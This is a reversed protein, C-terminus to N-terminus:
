QGTIVLNSENELHLSDLTHATCGYLVASFHLVAEEHALFTWIVSLEQVRGRKNQQTQALTMLLAPLKVASICKLSLLRFHPKEMLTHSPISINESLLKWPFLTSVETITTLACIALWHEKSLSTTQFTACLECLFWQISLYDGSNSESQDVNAYYQCPNKEKVIM